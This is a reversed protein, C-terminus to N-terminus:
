RRQGASILRSSGGAREMIRRVAQTVYEKIV